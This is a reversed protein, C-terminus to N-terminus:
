RGKKKIEELILKNRKRKKERGKRKEIRNIEERKEV